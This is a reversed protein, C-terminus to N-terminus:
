GETRTGPFKIKAADCVKEFEKMRPFIRKVTDDYRAADLDAESYKSADGGWAALAVQVYRQKLDNQFARERAMRLLTDNVERLDAVRKKEMEDDATKKQMLDKLQKRLDAITAADAKGQAELEAVRVRLMACEACPAPAAPPAPPAPPPPAPQSQAAALQALATDLQKQLGAAHTAAQKQEAAAKDTADALQKKLRANEDRLGALQAKTDALEKAVATAANGALADKEKLLRNLRDADDRAARTQAEAAALRDQWDAAAQKAAREAQSLRDQTEAAAQKAAREAQSLRDEATQARALADAAQRQAAALRQQADADAGAAGSTAAALAQQAEKLRQEVERTRLDAQAALQVAALHRQNKAHPHDLTANWSIFFFSAL